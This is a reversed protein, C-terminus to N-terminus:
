QILSNSFYVCVCVFVSFFYLHLQWHFLTILTFLALSHDGCQDCYEWVRASFLIPVSVASCCERGTQNFRGIICISEDTPWTTILQSHYNAEIDGNWMARCHLWAGLAAWSALFGVPIAAMSPRQHHRWSPCLASSQFCWWRLGCNNWPRLVWESACM